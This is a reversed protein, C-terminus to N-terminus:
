NRTRKRVLQRSVRRQPFVRGKIKEVAATRAALVDAFQKKVLSLTFVGALAIVLAGALKRPSLESAEEIAERLDPSIKGIRDMLPGSTENWATVLEGKARWLREWEANAAGYLADLATKGLTLTKTVQRVLQRWPGLVVARVTEDELEALVALVAAIPVMKQRDIKRAETPYAIGVQSGVAKDLADDRVWRAGAEKGEPVKAKAMRELLERVEALEKTAEEISV